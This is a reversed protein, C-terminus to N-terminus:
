PPSGPQFVPAPEDDVELPFEELLRAFAALRSFNLLVGARHEPAATAPPM